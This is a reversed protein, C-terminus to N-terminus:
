KKLSELVKELNLFDFYEPNIELLKNEIIILNKLDKKNSAEKRQDLLISIEESFNRTDFLPSQLIEEIPKNIYFDTEETIVSHDIKSSCVFVKCNPVSSVIFPSHTSVLIQLKPFIKLINKLFVKQWKPHM